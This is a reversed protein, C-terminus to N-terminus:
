KRGRAGATVVLPTESPLGDASKKKRDQNKSPNRPAPLIDPLVKLGNTRLELRRRGVVGEEKGPTVSGLDDWADRADGTNGAYHRCDTGHIEALRAGLENPTLRGYVREVMRTNLHGMCPAILELPVGQDRQWHAYTRRLDNPGFREVVVLGAGCARCVKPMILAKNPCDKGEGRKRGNYMGCEVCTRSAREAAREMGRHINQWRGFLKGGKGAAHELVYRLLAHQENSPTPVTRYRTARKTGRILVFALDAGIDTRLANDSESLNASTAVMFAMRAAHDPLLHPIVRLLEARSLHRQRPRYSPAFAVPLIASIDGAWSGARKAIKLSRRLATLEGHITSDHAGEERRTAIYADAHKAQLGGVRFDHGMVRVLHGVKPKYYRLTEPSRRPPRAGVDRELQKMMADLVDELTTTAHATAYDPDQAEREKRRRFSTAAQKDTCRSSVEVKEGKAPDFYTVYWYKGRKRM